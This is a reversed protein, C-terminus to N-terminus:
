TGKSTIKNYKCICFFYKCVMYVLLSTVNERCLWEIWWNIEPIGCKRYTSELSSIKTSSGGSERDLCKRRAQEHVKAEALTIKM